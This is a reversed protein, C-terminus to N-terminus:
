VLHFAILVLMFVLMYVNIGIFSRKFNIPKETKFAMQVFISIFGINLLLIAIYFLLDRKELFAPVLLSCFSTCLVWVFIIKPLTGPNVAATITKFGALRYEEGYKFMLLWFHPVQWIFLFLGVYMIAPNTIEGGAACWGIYVPVAGVLSGPVVAFASIRKMPTYIGNYWLVNFLGLLAPILGFTLYLITAGALIFFVSYFLAQQRSLLGMPIPRMNTRNMLADHKAEQVQNLSSSGSALLLVGLILQLINFDVSKSFMIYGVIATLTVAVSVKLKMLKVVAKYPFFSM